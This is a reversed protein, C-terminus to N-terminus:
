VAAAVSGDRRLKVASRRREGPALGPASELDLDSRLAIGLGPAEPTPLYGGERSPIGTLVAAADPGEDRTTYEQTLLNPI